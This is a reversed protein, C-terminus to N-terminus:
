DDGSGVPKELLKEPVNMLIRQGKTLGRVIEARNQSIIGVQVPTFVPKGTKMSFVGTRGGQKVLSSVPVLLVASKKELPIMVHATMGVKVQKLTNNNKAEMKESSNPAPEEKKSKGMMTSDPPLIECRLKFTTVKDSIETTLSHVKGPFAAGPIAPVAIICPDGINIKLFDTESVYVDVALQEHSQVEFLVQGPSVSSNETLTSEVGPNGRGGQGAGSQAFTAIGTAPARIDKNALNEEAERLALKAATYEAQAQEVAQHGGKEETEAMNARAKNLDARAKDLELKSRDLDQKSIAKAAYLQQNQEYRQEKSELETQGSEVKAKADIYAPSSRWNLIHKLNEKAKLFAAKATALKATLEDKDLGILLQGKKVQDGDKVAVTEIKAGALSAVKWTVLPRITGSLQLMRGIDGTRVECTTVSGLPGTSRRFLLKSGVIVLVLVVVVMLLIKRSFPWRM